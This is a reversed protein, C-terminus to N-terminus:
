ACGDVIESSTSPLWESSANSGARLWGAVATPPRRTRIVRRASAAKGWEAGELADVRAMALFQHTPRNDVKSKTLQKSRTMKRWDLDTRFRLFLAMFYCNAGLPCTHLCCGGCDVTTALALFTTKTWWSADGGSPQDAALQKRSRFHFALRLCVAFLLSGFLPNIVSSFGRSIHSYTDGLLQLHVMEAVLVIIVVTTPLVTQKTERRLRDLGETQQVAVTKPRQSVTQNGTTM